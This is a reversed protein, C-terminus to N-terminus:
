ISFHSLWQQQLTEYGERSTEPPSSSHRVADVLGKHYVHDWNQWPLSEFQMCFVLKQTGGDAHPIVHHAALLPMCQQQTKEYDKMSTYSLHSSSRTANVLGDHNVCHLKHSPRSEFQICFVLNQTVEGYM